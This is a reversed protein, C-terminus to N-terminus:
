STAHQPFTRTVEREASPDEAVASECLVGEVEPSLSDELPHKEDKM